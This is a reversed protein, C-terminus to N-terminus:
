AFHIEQSSDDDQLMEDRRLVSPQTHAATQMISACSVTKEVRGCADWSCGGQWLNEGMVLHYQISVCAM